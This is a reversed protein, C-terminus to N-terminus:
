DQVYYLVALVQIVLKQVYYLVALVQIVLKQVYYLVALVQIVGHGISFPDFSGLPIATNTLTHKIASPTYPISQTKLDSIM